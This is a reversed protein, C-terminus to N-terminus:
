KNNIIAMIILANYELTYKYKKAEEFAKTSKRELVHVPNIHSLIPDLEM